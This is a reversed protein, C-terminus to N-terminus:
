EVFSVRHNLDFLEQGSSLNTIGSDPVAKRSSCHLNGSVEVAISSVQPAVLTVLAVSDDCITIAVGYELHGFLTCSVLIVRDRLSLHLGEKFVEVGSGCPLLLLPRGVSTFSAGAVLGLIPRGRGDKERRGVARGLCRSALSQVQHMGGSGTAARSLWKKWKWTRSVSWQGGCDRVQGSLARQLVLIKLLLLRVLKLLLLLMLVEEYLLLLALEVILLLLEVLLMILLLLLYLSLKKLLV